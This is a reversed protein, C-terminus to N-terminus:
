HLGGNRDRQKSHHRDATTLRYADGCYRIATVRSAADAEKLNPLGQEPVTVRGTSVAELYAVLDARTRADAIGPFGMANGPVLAAPSKLWADLNRKDWILGSRRLADSYRVFGDTTGAKRGWVVALSPGTMHRGPAFSHCAMCARAARAGRAIDGEAHASLTFALAAVAAVIAGIVSQQIM